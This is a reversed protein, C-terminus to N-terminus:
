LDKLSLLSDGSSQRLKTAGLEVLRRVVQDALEQRRHSSETPQGCQWADPTKRDAVGHVVVQVVGQKRLEKAWMVAENLPMAPEKGRVCLEQLEQLLRNRELLHDPGEYNEAVPQGHVPQWRNYIRPVDETFERRENHLPLQLLVGQELGEYVAPPRVSVLARPWPTQSLGISDVLVLIPLVVWAMSWRKSIREFGISAAVALFLVAPGLARWWHTLGELPPFVVRLGQAPMPVSDALGGQYGGVMLHPGLSLLVFPVCWLVLLRGRRGSALALFLVCVGLYVSKSVEVSSLSPLVLNLLDAGSRPLERWAEWQGELPLPAGDWRGAWFERERWFRLLAPLVMLSAAVGQLFFGLTLQRRRLLTIGLCVEAVVAFVASYWGTWLFAGLSLAAGFLDADRRDRGYRLLFGCHFGLWGIGWSETIGFSGLGSLFPSYACALGAFLSARQSVGLVRALFVAGAFALMLNFCWVANYGLAPDLWSFARYVPLNVPDMLPIPLGSPYNAVVGAEGARWFMWLHNSAEGQAHGYLETPNLLLPWTFLVGGLVLVIVGLWKSEGQALQRNM